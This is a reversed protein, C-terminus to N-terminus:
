PLLLSMQYVLILLQPQDTFNASIDTLTSKDKCHGDPLDVQCTPVSDLKDRTRCRTLIPSFTMIASSPSQSM